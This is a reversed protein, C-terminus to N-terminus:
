HEELTIYAAMEVPPHYQGGGTSLMEVTLALRKYFHMEILPESHFIYEKTCNITSLIFTFFGYTQAYKPPIVRIRKHLM